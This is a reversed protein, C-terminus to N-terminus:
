GVEFAIAAARVMDREAYVETVDARAHGLILQAGEIGFKQRMRTGVAHRLQNPTWRSVLRKSQPVEPAAKHAALDAKDCARAIARNYSDKSYSSGPHRSPRQKKRNAQSPQVSTKRLSRMRQFQRSRSEEPSFCYAEAPRDLYPRLIEQALPGLPIRRTRGLYATKHSSPSYWWVNTTMDLDSPRMTCLETPRCGILRHLRVMDQLVHPLHPLTADVIADPVPRVPETERVASRGRKLGPVTTLAQYTTIPILEQSAAWKFLRRIHAVQDNCYRRSYGATVLEQQIAQLSLPGFSTAPMAGYAMRIRRLAQKIGHLSGTPRGDQVYYSQAYQWYNLVLVTIPLSNSQELNRPRGAAIWDSVAQDYALYSAKSRWPGLYLVKAAVTVVAQGSGKHRRYKPLANVLRPM